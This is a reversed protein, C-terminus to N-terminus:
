PSCSVGWKPAFAANTVFSSNSDQTHFRDPMTPFQVVCWASLDQNFAAARDFMSEMDLVRRTDWAGLPQDFLTTRYFMLAMTEVSSTNWNLPQNFGHAAYFMFSMDTVNRTDWAGIPTNFASAQYFAGKMSTVESTDWAGLNDITPSEAYWFAWDLNTVTAPLVAPVSTLSSAFFAGALSDLGLEGFSRVAVFRTANSYGRGAKGFQPLWPGAGVGKSITIAKAGGSRYTCSLDFLSASNFTTPCNPAGGGWDIRVDIHRQHGFPL